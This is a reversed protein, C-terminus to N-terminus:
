AFCELRLINSYFNSMASYGTLVVIGHGEIGGAIWGEFVVTNLNARSTYIACTNAAPGSGIICVDCEVMTM